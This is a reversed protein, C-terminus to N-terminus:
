AVTHSTVPAVSTINLVYPPATIVALITAQPTDLAVAAAGARALLLERILLHLLTTSMRRRRATARPVPRSSCRERRVSRTGKGHITLTTVDISMVHAQTSRAM